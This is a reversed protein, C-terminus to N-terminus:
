FNDDVKINYDKDKKYTIRHIHIDKIQGKHCNIEAKGYDLNFVGGDVLALFKEFHRQYLVFAKAQEKNLYIKNEKIQEQEQKQSM